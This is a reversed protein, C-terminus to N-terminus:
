HEAQVNAKKAKRSRAMASNEITIHQGYRLVMTDSRWRGAQRVQLSDYGQELLDQAAGVRASHGTFPRHTSKIISLPLSPDVHPHLDLWAKLFIRDLARTSLPQHSASNDQENVKPAIVKGSRHIARFLYGGEAFSIGTVMLYAQVFSMCQASLHTWDQGDGSQNTKTFPIRLSASGDPKVKFHELRIRVLESVRMMTEYAVYLVALDRLTSASPSSGYLAILRDLDADRFPTAQRIYEDEVRVKHKIIGRFSNKVRLDLTTNPCGAAMLTTGIAWLEVSLTNRHCCTSRFQLYERIQSPSSPLAHKMMQECWSVYRGWAQKLRKQTSPSFMTQEQEFERLLAQACRQFPDNQAITEYSWGLEIAQQIARQVNEPDPAGASAPLHFPSSIPLSM